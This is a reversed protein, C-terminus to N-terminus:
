IIELIDYKHLPTPAEHNGMGGKAFDPLKDHGVCLHQTHWYVTRRTKIKKKELCSKHSTNRSDKNSYFMENQFCPETVNETRPGQQVQWVHSLVMWLLDMTADKKREKLAFTLMEAPAM